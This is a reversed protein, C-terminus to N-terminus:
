GPRHGDDAPCRSDAPQRSVPVAGDAAGACRDCAARGQHTPLVHRFGTLDRVAAEFREFSRSGAYSEDAIMMAGWQAASMASTGSDTLLDFTVTSAPLAFLNYGHERLLRERQARTTRAIPEVVKIRFPETVIPM